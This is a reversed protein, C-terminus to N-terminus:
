GSGVSASDAAPHSHAEPLEDLRKAGKSHLYEIIRPDRACDLPTCRYGTEPDEEIANVQAGADVLVRVVDLHGWSCAYGLALEGSSNRKETDAGFRLALEALPIDGSGAARQLLTQRPPEGGADPSLGAEFARELLEPADRDLVHVLDGAEGVYDHLEPCERLLQVVLEGDHDEAARWFRRYEKEM